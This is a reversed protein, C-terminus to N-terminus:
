RPKALLQSVSVQLATMQEGIKTQAASLKEDLKDVKAGVERQQRERTIEREAEFRARESAIVELKEIRSQTLMQTAEIARGWVIFPGGIVIAIGILGVITDMSIRKEFFWGREHLHGGDADSARKDPTKRVNPM